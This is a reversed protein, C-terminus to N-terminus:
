SNNLTKEILAAWTEEYGIANLKNKIIPIFLSKKARTIAVYLLMHTDNKFRNRNETELLFVYDAEKGKSSHITNFFIGKSFLENNEKYFNKTDDIADFYNYRYFMAYKHLINIWFNMGDSLHKELHEKVPKFMIWKYFVEELDLWSINMSQQTNLNSDILNLNLLQSHKLNQLFIMEDQKLIDQYSLGFKGFANFIMALAFTDKDNALWKLLYQFDKIIPHMTSYTSNILFGAAFFEHALREMNPGKQKFLIMIDKSNLQKIQEVIESYQDIEKFELSGEFKQVTSHLIFDIDLNVGIKNVFECLKIPLRYTLDMKKEEFIESLMKIKNKYEKFCEKSAGQFEYILQKADGVVILKNKLEQWESLIVHLFEWQLQSLDQSEDVLMLKVNGFHKFFVDINSEDRLIEISLHLLDEYYLFNQEDKLLQEQHLILNSIKNKAWHIYNEYNKRHLTIRNIIWEYSTTPIKLQLNEPLNIKKRLTAQKTFFYNGIHDLIQKEIVVSDSLCEFETNIFHYLHDQEIQKLTEDQMTKFLVLNDSQKILWTILELFEKNQLLRLIALGEFSDVSIQKLPFKELIIKLALAHLTSVEISDTQGLRERIENAAANSFTLFLSKSLNSDEIAKVQNLLFTTKGSGASAEVWITHM